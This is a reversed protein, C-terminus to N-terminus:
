ASDLGSVFRFGAGGGNTLRCEALIAKVQDTDNVAQAEYIREAYENPLEYVANSHLIVVYTHHPNPKIRMSNILSDTLQKYDAM